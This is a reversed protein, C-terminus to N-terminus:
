VAQNEEDEDTTLEAPLTRSRKAEPETATSTISNPNVEKVVDGCKMRRQHEELNGKQWIMERMRM